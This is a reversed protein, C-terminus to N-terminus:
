ATLSGNLKELGADVADIEEQLEIIVQDFRLPGASRMRVDNLLKWRHERIEELALRNKLTVYGAVIHEIAKTMM